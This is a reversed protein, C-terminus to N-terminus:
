TEREGLIRRMVLADATPNQYYNKRESLLQFGAKRYLGVAPANDKRVELFVCDAGRSAADSLFRNLLAAGCGNQRYAASVAIRLLEAEPKIVTGLLYGLLREGEFLGLCLAYPASISTKVTQKGYADSFVSQEMEEVAAADREQLVRIEGM